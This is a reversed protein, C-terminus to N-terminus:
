GVAVAVAGNGDGVRAGAVSVGVSAGGVAVAEGSGGIALGVASGDGVEVRIDGGADGVGDGTGAGLTRENVTTGVVVTLTPSTSWKVQRAVPSRASSHGRSPGPGASPRHRATGRWPLVVQVVWSLSM